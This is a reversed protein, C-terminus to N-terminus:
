KTKLFISRNCIRVYAYQAITYGQDASRMYYERAGALDFAKEFVEGPRCIGLDLKTLQRLKGVEVFVENNM